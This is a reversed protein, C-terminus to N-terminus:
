KSAEISAPKVSDAASKEKSEEVKVEEPPTKASAQMSPSGIQVKGELTAGSEVTVREATIDGKIHASAHFVAQKKVIINGDVAGSIVAEEATVNAKIHAESGVTLTGSASITGHVDGEIVVDGQSKFEGDVRVGRAIVTAAQPALSPTL